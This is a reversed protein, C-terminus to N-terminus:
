TGRRSSRRTASFCVVKGDRAYAPMGYWLRPSLAPDPPTADDEAIRAGFCSEVQEHRQLDWWAVSLINGDTRWVAALTRSDPGFQLATLRGDTRGHATRLQVAIM